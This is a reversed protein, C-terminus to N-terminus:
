KETNKTYVDCMKDLVHFLIISSYEIENLNQIVKQFNILLTFYCQIDLLSARLKLEKIHKWFMNYGRM